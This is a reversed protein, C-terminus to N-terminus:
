LRGIARQLYPGLTTAFIETIHQDDKYVLAGGVVPYCRKTGCFFRSMDIVKVRDSSLRQAAVVAADPRLVKERAVACADAADREKAIAHRVCDFTDNGVLPTDRIVIIRTVSAPLANWAAAYGDAKAALEDRGDRNVIDAAFHGVVFITHVDPHREFWMPVQQNWRLCDLRRSEPEITPSVRSLPCSTRTISIGRWRKRRAVNELAARWHSAHSDGVLAVTSRADAAPVGFECPGVLASLELPTCPSNPSTVAEDPTPVVAHRLTRNDCAHRPDRSAAGFCRAHAAPATSLAIELPLEGSDPLRDEVGGSVSRVHWHYLGPVLRLQAPAFHTSIMTPRPRRVDSPLDRIGIRNGDHDLATYRLRVGSKAQASPVVCLRGGPTSAADDRLWVCLGSRPSPAVQQPEWPEYTRLSLSLEASATQGFRAGFVDLPTTHEPPDFHGAPRTGAVAALGSAASAGTGALLAASAIVVVAAALRRAATRPQDHSM